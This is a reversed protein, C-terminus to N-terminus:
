LHQNLLSSYSPQQQNFLRSSQYFLHLPVVPQNITTSPRNTPQILSLQNVAAATLQIASQLIHPQCFMTTASPIASQLKTLKDAIAQESVASQIVGQSFNVVATTTPQVVQQSVVATIALQIAQQNVEAAATLQIGQQNIQAATASHLVPETYSPSIQQDQASEQIPHCVCHKLM